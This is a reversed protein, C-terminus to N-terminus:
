KFIIRVLRAIGFFVLAYVILAVPIEFEIVYNSVGVPGGFMDEFPFMFPTTLQYVFDVFISLRNAGFLSLVFRFMLLAAIFFYVFILLQEVKEVVDPRHQTHPAQPQPTFSGPQQQQEQVPINSVAQSYDQNEM